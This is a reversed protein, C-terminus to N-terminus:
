KWTKHQQEGNEDFYSFNFRVPKLIVLKDLVDKTYKEACGKKLYGITVHPHYEKFESHSPFKDLIKKNTVYLNMSAANCKLVDYDKNGFMSVDTLAVGYDKLPLLIKKIEDLDVDNDLCAALTTHTEKELGYKFVEDDPDTFLEDEPIKNHLEKIFDPTEFDVMLFALKKNDAM